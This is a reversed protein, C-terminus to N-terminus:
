VKKASEQNKILILNRMYIFMQLSIGTLFVIDHRKFVYVLLMISGVLRLIWFQKPLCSKKLKESMYWQVVFSSLFLLQAVFGWITWFDILFYNFLNM